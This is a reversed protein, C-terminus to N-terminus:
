AGGLLVELVLKSGFYALMLVAIGSLTWRIAIRGRWGFRHRGWLLTGFVGWSALSLVTKHVMRQAFMDDLFFFGSLLAISLLVFGAWIMQFLLTEMTQLPPLARVFGGPKRNRLQHDQLALLISQVAAISLISYAFLSIIIHTALGPPTEATILRPAPYYWAVAISIAAAPLILIGLNEVPRNLAVFATLLAILWAMLSFANFFGLNFGGDQTIIQYLLLGHLILAAVGLAFAVIRSWRLAAEGGIFRVGLLLGALLYLTVAAAALFTSM